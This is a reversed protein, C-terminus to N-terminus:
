VHILTNFMLYAFLFLFITLVYDRSHSLFSRSPKFMDFSSSYSLSPSLHFLILLFSNPRLLLPHFSLYRHRTSYIFIRNSIPLLPPSIYALSRIQTPYLHLYFLRIPGSSYERQLTRQGCNVNISTDCKEHSPNSDDFLLGDPCLKETLEGDATCHYYLDCQIPDAYFGPKQPCQFEDVPQQQKQGLAM